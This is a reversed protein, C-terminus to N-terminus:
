VSSLALILESIVLEYVEHISYVTLNGDTNSRSDVRSARGGFAPEVLTMPISPCPPDPLDV